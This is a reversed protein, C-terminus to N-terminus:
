ACENFHEDILGVTEVNLVLYDPPPAPPHAKGWITGIINLVLKSKKAWYDYFCMVYRGFFDFFEFFTGQKM